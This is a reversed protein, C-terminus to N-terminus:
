FFKNLFVQVVFFFHCFVNNGIRAELGVGAFVGAMVAGLLPDNVESIVWKAVGTENLVAVVLPYIITSLLTKLAFDKKLFILGIFYLIWNLVFIVISPNFWKELIVSVGSLGGIDLNFPLVFISTSIALLVNGLVIILSNIIKEKM